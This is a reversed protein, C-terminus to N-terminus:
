ELEDLAVNLMRLNVQAAGGFTFRETYQDVLALVREAPLGRAAAVQPAQVHAQDLSILRMSNNAPPIAESPIPDTLSLGMQMRVSVGERAFHRSAVASPQLGLGTAAANSENTFYRPQAIVVQATTAAIAQPAAVANRVFTTAVLIAFLALTLLVSRLTTM